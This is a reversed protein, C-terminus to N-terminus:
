TEALEILNAALHSDLQANCTSCGIFCGKETEASCRFVAYQGDWSIM